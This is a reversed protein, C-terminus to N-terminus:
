YQRALVATETSTSAFFAHTPHTHHTWQSDIKTLGVPWVGRSAPNKDLSTQPSHPSDQKTVCSQLQVLLPPRPMQDPHRRSVDFQSSATPGSVSCACPFVYGKKKKAQSRRLIVCFLQLSIVPFCAAMIVCVVIHSPLSPHFIFMSNSMCHTISYLYM